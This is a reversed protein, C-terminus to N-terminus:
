LLQLRKKLLVEAILFDLEEDIDISDEKKMIYAYYNEEYWGNFNKIIDWDFLYIAGNFQYYKDYQQRNKNREQEPIFNYLSLDESLVNSLKPNATEGVSIVCFAKKCFFMEIAEDIHFNTRLPSTPQLYLFLDYSNNNIKFFDVVHQMVEIATTNDGSIGKPRVFPIYAGYEKSVNIIEECNSSVIVEDIYKSKKAAEITWAILPKDCLLKINKKKLGKSGGRAPIVALIKKDKFM